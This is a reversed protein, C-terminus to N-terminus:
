FEELIRDGKLERRRVGGGRAQRKQKETNEAGGSFFVGINWNYIIMHVLYMHLDIYLSGM